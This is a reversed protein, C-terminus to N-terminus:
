YNYKIIIFGDDDVNDFDETVYIDTYGYLINPVDVSLEMNDTNVDFRVYEWGDVLNENVM